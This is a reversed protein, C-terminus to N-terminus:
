TSRSPSALRRRGLFRPLLLGQQSPIRHPPQILSRQRRRRGPLARSAPSAALCRPAAAVSSSHQRGRINNFRSDARHDRVEASECRQQALRRSTSSSLRASLSHVPTRRSHICRIWFRCM